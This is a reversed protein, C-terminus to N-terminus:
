RMGRWCQYVDGAKVAMRYPKGFDGDRYVRDEETLWEHDQQFTYSGNHPFLPADDNCLEEKMADWLRALHWEGWSFDFPKITEGNREIRTELPM